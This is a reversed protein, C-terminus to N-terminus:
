PPHGTRRLSIKFQTAILYTPGTGYGITLIRDRKNQFSVLAGVTPDPNRFSLFGGVYIKNHLAGPETKTIVPYPRRLELSFDRNLMSNMYIDGSFIATYNSDAISDKYHYTTFYDLLIKNKVEPDSTDVGIPIYIPQKIVTEFHKEISPHYKSSDVIWITDKTVTTNSVPKNGCGHGFFILLLVLLAAIHLVLILNQKM